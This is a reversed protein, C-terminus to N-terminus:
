ARKINLRQQFLKKAAKISILKSGKIALAMLKVAMEQYYIRARKFIGRKQSGKYYKLANNVFQDGYSFLASFDQAPDDISADSFDIIGLRNISNKNIFINESTLDGHTLTPKFGKLTKKRKKMFDNLANKEQQTLHPYIFKVNNIIKKNKLIINKKPIQCQRLAGIPIKHLQSLFVAIERALENKQSFSLKKYRIESIVTGNVAKYVAIKSKADKLIPVPISADIKKQLYMLLCFNALMRKKAEINKPIRVVFNDDLLLINYDWGSTILRAKTWRLNPFIKRINIAFNNHM